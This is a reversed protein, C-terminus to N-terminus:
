LYKKNLVANNLHQDNKITRLRIDAIIPPFKVIPRNVANIAEVPATMSSTSISDIVM